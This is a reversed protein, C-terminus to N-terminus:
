ATSKDLFLPIWVDPNKGYQQIIEDCIRISIQNGSFIRIEDQLDSLDLKCLHARHDQKYLFIRSDPSLTRITQFECESLHLKDQYVEQSANPNPFYITTALNTIVEPAIASQM